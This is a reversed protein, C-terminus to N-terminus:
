LPQTKLSGDPFFLFRLDKELGLPWEDQHATCATNPWYREDTQPLRYPISGRPAWNTPKSALKGATASEL